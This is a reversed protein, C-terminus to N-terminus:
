RRRLDLMADDSLHNEPAEQVANWLDMPDLEDGFEAANVLVQVVAKVKEANTAM